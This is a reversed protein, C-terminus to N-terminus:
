HINLTLAADRDLGVCHPDLVFGVITFVVNEVQDVCGTVNIEGILNGTRHAGNFARKKNHVAGLTHFRLGQGVHIVRNFRVM